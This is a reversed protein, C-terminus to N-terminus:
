FDMMEYIKLFDNLSIFAMEVKVSGTLQDNQYKGLAQTDSVKVWTNKDVIKLVTAPM